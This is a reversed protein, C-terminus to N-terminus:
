ASLRTKWMSEMLSRRLAHNCTDRVVPLPRGLLPIRLQVTTGRSSSAVSFEGGLSRARNAMSNLGHGLSVRRCDFGKGDDTLRLALWKGDITIDVEVRECEAHRVINHTSEKFVLLAQRRTDPGLKAEDHPSPGRFQCAIGCAPFVDNAFARMRQITHGLSDSGPDISWVIDSMSDALQRSLAAIEALVGAVQPDKNSRRTVSETLLAIQALTAGIDDHLDSAIRSRLCELALRAALRFRYMFYVASAAGLAALGVFPEM